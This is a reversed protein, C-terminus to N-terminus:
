AAFYFCFGENIFHVGGGENAYHRWKRYVLVVSHIRLFSSYHTTFTFVARSTPTAVLIAVVVVGVWAVVCVLITLTHESIIVATLHTINTPVLLVVFVVYSLTEVSLTGLSVGLM